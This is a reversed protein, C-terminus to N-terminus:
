AGGVRYAIYRTIELGSDTVKAVEATKKAITLAPEKVFSQEFLIIEALQKDIKGKIINKAINEPKGKVDEEAKKTIIESIEALYAADVSDRNLYLPSMAAVHMAVDRLYAKVSDDHKGTKGLVVVGIMGDNHSYYAHITNNDLNVTEFRKIEFREKLVIVEEDVLTKLEDTVAALNKELIIQCLKNGLAIFRENKSVFDTECALELIVLKDGQVLSFVKGENSARDARKAANALGKEKLIKEAKAFDGDADQLAKKCDTMGAMTKERLEKVMQPTIAAM